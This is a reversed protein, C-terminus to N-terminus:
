HDKREQNIMGELDLVVEEGTKQYMGNCYYDFLNLATVCSSQTPKAGRTQIFEKRTIRTDLYSM